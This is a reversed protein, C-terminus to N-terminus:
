AASDLLVVANDRDARLSVPAGVRSLGLSTSACDAILSPGAPLAVKLRIIPGLFTITEIHGHFDAVEPAALALHEPRYVASARAGHGAAAPVKVPWTRGAAEIGAEGVHGDVINATGVFEAVFRSAPRHYIDSPTGVQEIRGRRMVAIRDSLALAEEQDHTVYIATVGLRDVVARIEARLKTRIRADLASLPEDLLLVSPNPALARALAVRQQQGGSLEHPYRALLPALEMMRALEAVRAEIRASREGGIKLAFGINEAVTKTPFLAYSQFVFGMRRAAPALFTIDEDNRLIRGSDAAAFGALIRLLTTKGCGSDGLLTIFAGSAIELSVDDAAIVEGFRKRVAQISLRSM